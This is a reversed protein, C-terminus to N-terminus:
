KRGGLEKEAEEKSFFLDYHLDDLIVRFGLKDMFLFGNFTYEQIEDDVIWYVKGGAKRPLHVLNSRETFYECKNAFIANSKCGKNELCAKFHLCNICKKM